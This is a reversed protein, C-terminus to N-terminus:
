EQDEEKSILSKIKHSDGFIFLLVWPVIKFIDSFLPTISNKIQILSTYFPEGVIAIFYTIGLLLSFIVFGYVLAVVGKVVHSRVASESNFKNADNKAKADKVTDIKKTSNEQKGATNPVTFASGAEERAKAILDALKKGNPVPM